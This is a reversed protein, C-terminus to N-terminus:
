GVVTGRDIVDSDLGFPRLARRAAGVSVSYHDAPPQSRDAAPVETTYLSISGNLVVLYAAVTEGPRLGSVIVYRGDEADAHNLNGEDYRWDVAIGQDETISDAM